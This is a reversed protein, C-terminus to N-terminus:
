MPVVLAVCRGRLARPRLGVGRGIARGGLTRFVSSPRGIQQPKFQGALAAGGQQKRGGGSDRFTALPAASRSRCAERVWEVHCTVNKGFGANCEMRTCYVTANM